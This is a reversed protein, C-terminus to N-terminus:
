GCFCDLVLDGENSSAKIIRELLAEPKQTPYVKAFSGSIDTWIDKCRVGQENKYSKRRPTKGAEVVLINQNLWELATEKPMRYGNSPMKEGFGLDYRYGGGGPNDVSVLQYIGKEDRQNYLKESAESYEQFIDNWTWTEGKTYLLISDHSKIFKKNKASTDGVASQWIIENLFKDYGFIEDLVVKVYHILRWDLHVYISGNDHLLDRLLVATDYFWKLYSDLGRGWTDRYAKLEVANPAKEFENGDGVQATFSFDAGTDFPPDIYILNVKGAFEPLLSPLVYKKDGWILKNRWPKRNDPNPAFLNKQRDASSESIIEVTQFQLPLKLPAAKKGTADYKGDWLLETM